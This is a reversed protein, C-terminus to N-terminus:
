SSLPVPERVLGDVRACGPGVKGVQSCLELSGSPTGAVVTSQSLVVELEIGDTDCFSVQNSSYLEASISQISDSDVSCSACGLNPGRLCNKKKYVA